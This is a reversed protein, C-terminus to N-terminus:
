HAISRAATVGSTDPVPKYRTTSYNSVVHCLTSCCVATLAVLICLVTTLALVIAAHDDACERLSKYDISNSCTPFHEEEAAISPIGDALTMALNVSSLNPNEELHSGTFAWDAVLVRLKEWGKDHNLLGCHGFCGSAFYSVNDSAHSADHMTHLLMDRLTTIADRETRSCPTRPGLGSLAAVCCGSVGVLETLQWSDFVSNVVLVKNQIHTLAKGALMCRWPEDDNAALCGQNVTSDPGGMEMVDFMAGFSSAMSTNSLLSEVEVLVGSEPIGLVRTEKPLRSVIYDINMIIAVGGASCGGLLVDTASDLGRDLLDELVAALIRQGRYYVYDGGGVYVPEKANGSFGGGDCYRVYVHNWTYFFPNDAAEGSMIGHGGWEYLHKAKHSAFTTSSGLDDKSRERCDEASTCWGGGQFHIIWRTEPEGSDAHRGRMIYYGPPTGDLCVAGQTDAARALIVTEWNKYMDEVDPRSAVLAPLAAHVLAALVAATSAGREASM